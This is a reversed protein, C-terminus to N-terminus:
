PRPRAGTSPRDGRRRAPTRPSRGRRPSRRGGPAPPGPPSPWPRRGAGGPASGPIARGGPRPRPASGPGPRRPPSPGCGCRGPRRRGGGPGPRPPGAPRALPGPGDEDAVALPQAGAPEVEVGGHDVELQPAVVLGQAQVVAGLPRVLREAVAPAWRAAQTCALRAMVCARRPSRRAARPEVLVGAVRKARWPSVPPRGAGPGSCRGRRRRGPPSCGRGAGAPRTGGGDGLAGPQLRVGDDPARTM